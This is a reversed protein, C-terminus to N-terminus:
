PTAGSSMSAIVPAKAARRGSTTSFSRHADGRDVFLQQPRDADADREKVEVREAQPEGVVREAFPEALDLDAALQEVAERAEVRRRQPGPQLGLAAIGGLRGEPQAAAGHGHRQGEVAREVPVLRDGHQDALVDAPDLLQLRHDVGIRHHDLAVGALDLALLLLDLLQQQVHHRARDVLFVPGEADDGRPEVIRDRHDADIEDAEGLHHGRMVRRHDDALQVVDVGGEVPDAFLEVAGADAGDAIEVDRHRAQRVRGLVMGAAGGIGRHAEQAIELLAVARVRDAPGAPDADGRARDDAGHHPDLFVDVVHEARRHDVRAAQAVVRPRHLDDAVPREGAREPRAEGHGLGPHGLQRIAALLGGERGQRAHRDGGNIRPLHIM